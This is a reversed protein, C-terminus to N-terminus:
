KVCNEWKFKGINFKMYYKTKDKEQYLKVMGQSICNAGLMSRVFVFWNTIIKIKITNYYSYPTVTTSFNIFM